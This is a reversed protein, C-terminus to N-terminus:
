RGVAVTPPERPAEAVAAGTPDLKSGGDDAHASADVMESVILTTSNQPLMKVQSPPTTALSFVAAVTSVVTTFPRVVMLKQPEVNLHPSSPSEWTLCINDITADEFTSTLTWCVQTRHDHDIIM